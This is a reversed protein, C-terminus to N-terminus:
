LQKGTVSFYEVCNYLKIFQLAEIKYPTQYERQLNLSINHETELFQKIVLMGWIFVIRLFIANDFLDSIM